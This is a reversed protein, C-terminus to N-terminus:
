DVRLVVLDVPLLSEPDEDGGLPIEITARIRAPAARGSPPPRLTSATVSGDAPQILTLYDRGDFVVRELEVQGQFISGDNDLDWVKLQVGSREKLRNLGDEWTSVLGLATHHNTRVLEGTVVLTRETPTLQGIRDLHLKPHNGCGVFVLSLFVASFVSFRRPPTM